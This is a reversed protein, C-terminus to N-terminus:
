NQTPLTNMIQKPSIWDGEQEKMEEMMEKMMFKMNSKLDQLEKNQNEMRSSQLKSLRQSEKLQAQVDELSNNDFKKKSKPSDLRLYNWYRDIQRSSPAHGLRANVEDSTWGKSLLDCAMSSRLDKYTVKEGNPECKAGAKEVARELFNQAAKIGFKFLKDDSHLDSMEISQNFRNKVKRKIPKVNPLVIDLFQTTERYNTLERRARRSRKLNDKSLRILYEPENTDKNIRREFNKTTLNLLSGINEGIDFSLWLLLKQEPQIACDIIRRFVDERIFRVENDVDDRARVEIKKFYDKAHQDTGAFEFLKGQIMQYYLSRDSFKKNYKNKIIGDELDNILNAVDGLIEKKVKIVEGSENKKEVEIIKTPELKSWDKNQFWKTLNKLRGIYFYLTKASREDYETLGQKRRLKMEEYELFEKITERNHENISKDKM